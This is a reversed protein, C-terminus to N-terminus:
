DLQAVAASVIKPDGRLGRLLARVGPLDRAFGELEQKATAPAYGLRQGTQVLRLVREPAADHPWLASLRKVAREVKTRRGAFGALVKSRLAEEFELEVTTARSRPSSALTIVTTLTDGEYRWAVPSGGAVVKKPPWVGPVRITVARSASMGPYRGEVAGIEIRLSRDSPNSTRVPTFSFEGHQYGVSDGGDEYVRTAGNAGSFVALVLPDGSGAGARRAKGQMPIIAGARVFVPIEDLAYNRTVVAPGKVHEGSFWGIWEGAPLWVARRALGTAPDGAAIIPAVILDDGVQYQDAFRYAEEAEPWDYYMPRMISVGTDYAERAATYLYPILSYRLHVAERMARAYADPYTWIRRELIPDKTSHTRLIPSFAGYQIWRTYLEPELPTAKFRADKYHDGVMNPALHGGIDHSWYGYGVNSATATFRPQFALSAWSSYTDGSFGIQYRHNGLGGWRHFMMPRARGRREMDTYFVHNLWFTPSVGPIKTTGWQQWDLWWFDVGQAELPHIVEKMYADAFKREVIDFPVYKKSAPDIGMARAVAPYQAEHPQIGSAPHLNLTVKLGKARTWDLFAKPDPFFSRNWTHGTWGLPEGAQDKRPRWWRSEFTDHWDMDIVLVDLPVDNAEFEGVLAMLERDTYAWYRSWWYGFAYRPPMPIRGAIRTFDNLARKYDRGHGFFYWDQREGAPRPTVWPQDSGELLPRTSDDVLVWGERSLIGPELEVPGTARDLTRTTGKLNATDPMGPRWTVSEAGRQVRISLNKATFQGSGERYRLAVAPTTIRLEGNAREVRFEPVPQKRRLFTLSARDEFTSTPSWELRVLHPTLVTFRAQGSVVVAGPDAKPELPEASVSASATSLVLLLPWSLAPLSARAM